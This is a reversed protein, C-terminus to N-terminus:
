RPSCAMDAIRLWTHNSQDHHAVAFMTDTLAAAGIAHQDIVYGNLGTRAIPLQTACADPNTVDFVCGYLQHATSGQTNDTGPFVTLWVGVPKGMMVMGAVRPATRYFTQMQAHRGLEVRSLDFGIQTLRPPSGDFMLLGGAFPVATTTDRAANDFAQTDVGSRLLNGAADLVMLGLSSGGGGAVLIEGNAAAIGYLAGTTLGQAEGGLLTTWPITLGAGMNVFHKTTLLIATGPLAIAGRMRETGTGRATFMRTGGEFTPPLAHAVFDGTQGFTIVLLRGGDYPIVQTDPLFQFGGVPTGDRGYTRVDLLSPQRYLVAITDGTTIVELVPPAGTLVTWPLPVSTLVCALAGYDMPAGGADIWGSGGAVGVGGDFPGGISGGAGTIGGSGMINLGGAGSGPPPDQLNGKKCATLAAALALSLSVL